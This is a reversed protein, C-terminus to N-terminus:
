RTERMWFTIMVGLATFGLLVPYDFQNIGLVRGFILSLPLLAPLMWAGGTNLFIILLVLSAIIQLWLMEQATNESVQINLGPINLRALTTYTGDELYHATASYSYGYTREVKLYLIDTTTTSCNEALMTSTLATEQWTRVCYRTGINNVDNYFFRTNNTGEVWSLTYDISEWDLYNQLISEGIVVQITLSTSTIYAPITTKVTEGAYEVIFKYFEDGITLDMQCKGETNTTCIEVIFYENTLIDFKLAKITANELPLTSQDYVTITVTQNFSENLLYL